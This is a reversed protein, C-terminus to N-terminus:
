EDFSDELKSFFKGLVFGIASCVILFKLEMLQKESLYAWSVPTVMHYFVVTLIIIGMSEIIKRIM